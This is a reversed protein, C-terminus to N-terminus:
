RAHHLASALKDQDIGFETCTQDQAQSVPMGGKRLERYRRVALRTHIRQEMRAPSQGQRPRVEKKLHNFLGWFLVPPMRVQCAVLMGLLADFDRHESAHWRRELERYAATFKADVARAETSLHNRALEVLTPTQWEM